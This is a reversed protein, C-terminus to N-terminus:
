TKLGVEIFFYNNHTYTQFFNYYDSIFFKRRVRGTNKVSKKMTTEQSNEATHGGEEEPECTEGHTNNVEETIEYIEYTFPETFPQEETIDTM